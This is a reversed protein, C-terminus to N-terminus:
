ISEGVSVNARTEMVKANRDTKLVQKMDQGTDKETGKWIKKGKGTADPIIAEWSHNRECHVPM